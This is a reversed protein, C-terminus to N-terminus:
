GADQPTSLGAGAPRDAVVAVFHYPVRHDTPEAIWTGAAPEPLSYGRVREVLALDRLLRAQVDAPAYTRFHRNDSISFTPNCPVDFYVWGGPALWRAVNRLAQVDGDGADGDLPDGYFGLGFHELAGLIVVADFSGPAFLAPDRADGHVFTWGTADRGVRADVGTVTVDPNLRVLREAFDSEQCGLELVRPTECPWRLGWAQYAATWLMLAPDGDQYVWHIDRGSM